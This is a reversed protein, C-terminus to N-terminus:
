HRVRVFIEGQSQDAITSSAHLEESAQDNYISYSSYRGTARLEVDSDM